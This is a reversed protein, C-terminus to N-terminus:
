AQLKQPVTNLEYRVSLKLIGFLSASKLSSLKDSSVSTSSGTVLFDLELSFAAAFSTFIKYSVGSGVMMKREQNGVMRDYTKKVKNEIKRPGTGGRVM